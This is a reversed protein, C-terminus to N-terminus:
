EEAQTFRVKPDPRNLREEPSPRAQDGRGSSLFDWFYDDLEQHDPDRLRPVPVPRNYDSNPPKNMFEIMALSKVFWGDKRLCVALYPGQHAQITGTKRIVTVEGVHVFATADDRRIRHAEHLVAVQSEAWEELTKASGYSGKTRSNRARWSPVPASLAHATRADLSRFTSLADAQILWYM